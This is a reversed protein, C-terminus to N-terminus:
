LAKPSDTCLERRFVALAVRMRRVLGNPGCVVAQAPRHRPEDRRRCTCDGAAGQSGQATTTAGHPVSSRVRLRACDRAAHWAGRWRSALASGRPRYKDQVQRSTLTHSRRKYCVCKAALRCGRSAPLPRTRGPNAAERPPTMKEQSPRTRAACTRATRTPPRPAGAAGGLEHSHM